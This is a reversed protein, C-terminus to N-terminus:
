EGEDETVREVVQEVGVLGVECEVVSSVAVRVRKRWGDRKVVDMEAIGRRVEWNREARAPGRIVGRLRVNSISRVSRRSVGGEIADVGEREVEVGEVERIWVVGGGRLVREIRKVRGYLMAVM